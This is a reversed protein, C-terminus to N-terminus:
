AVKYQYEVHLLPLDLQDLSLQLNKDNYAFNTKKVITKMKCIDTSMQVRDSVM